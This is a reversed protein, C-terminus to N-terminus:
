RIISNDPMIWYCGDKDWEMTVTKGDRRAMTVQGPIYPAGNHLDRADSEPFSQGRDGGGGLANAFSGIGAMFQKEDM